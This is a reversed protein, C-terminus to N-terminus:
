RKGRYIDFITAPSLGFVEAAKHYATNDFYGPDQLSLGENDHLQRVLDCVEIQRLERDLDRASFREEGLAKALDDPGEAYTYRTLVAELEDVIPKPVVEGRGMYYMALGLVGVQGARWRELLEEVTPPTFAGVSPVAEDSPAEGKRSSGAPTKKM